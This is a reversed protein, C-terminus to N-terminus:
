SEVALIALGWRGRYEGFSATGDGVRTIEGFQSLWESADAFAHIPVVKHAFRWAAEHDTRSRDRRM